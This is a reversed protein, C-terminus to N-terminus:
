RILKGKQNYRYYDVKGSRKNKYYQEKARGNLHYSTYTIGRDDEFFREAIKGKAHYREYDTEGTKRHVYRERIAGGPFYSSFLVEKGDRHYKEKLVGNGYRIELNVDRRNEIRWRIEQIRNPINAQTSAWCTLTVASVCLLFGALTLTKTM